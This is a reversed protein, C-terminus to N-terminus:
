NLYRLLREFLLIKIETSKWINMTVVIKVVNASILSVLIVFIFWHIWSEQCCHLFHMQVLGLLQLQKRITVSALNILLRRLNKNWLLLNLWPRWYTAELIKQNIKSNIVWLYRYLLLITKNFIIKNSKTDLLKNLELFINFITRM